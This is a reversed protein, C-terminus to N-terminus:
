ATHRAGQRVYMLLTTLAAPTVGDVRAAQGLTAPRATGLKLRVENSLGPIAAYDLDSPLALGEDKRFARIDSEQRDLYGAYQADIELQEGVDAPVTGLEPWINGIETLGIEPYALLDMASRAVGDQNIRLGRRALETPSLRLTRALERAAELASLKAAFADARATGVLG